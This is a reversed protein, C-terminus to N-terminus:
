LQTPQYTKRFGDPVYKTLMTDMQPHKRAKRETHQSRARTATLAEQWALRSLAASTATVLLLDFIIDFWVITGNWNLFHWRFVASLHYLTNWVMCQSTSRNFTSVAVRPLTM